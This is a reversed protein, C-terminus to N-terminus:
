SAPVSFPWGYRTPSIRSIATVAFAPKKQSRPTVALRPPLVTM